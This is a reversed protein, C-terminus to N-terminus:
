GHVVALTLILRLTTIKVVPSFTDFYDYGVRQCFDQAVLRAKHCEVNGDLHFKVKFIWKCGILNKGLSLSTISWTKNKVLALLEASITNRWYVHRVVQEYTKPEFTTTITLFFVRHVPFLKKYDVMHSLGYRKSCSQNSSSGGHTGRRRGRSISSSNNNFNHVSNALSTFNQTELYSGNLQREQQTLLPFIENIDALSKMLMIQSRVSRYQENLGTLFRVAYTEDRYDRM